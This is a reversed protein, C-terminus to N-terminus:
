AHIGEDPKRPEISTVRALTCRFDCRVGFSPRFSVGLAPREDEDVAEELSLDWLSNQCNFDDLAIEQVGDFELTIIVHKITKYRGREDVESTMEYAHIRVTLKSGCGKESSRRDLHMSLVEADHFSPWCGFWDTILRYDVIREYPEM